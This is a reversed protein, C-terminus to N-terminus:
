LQLAELLELGKVKGTTATDVYSALKVFHSSIHLTDQIRDSQTYMRQEDIMRKLDEYFKFGGNMLVIMVVHTEDAYDALIREALRRWREEILGKPLIVNKVYPKFRPPMWFHEVPYSSDIKVDIAELDAPVPYM